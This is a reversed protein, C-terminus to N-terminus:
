AHGHYHSHLTYVVPLMLKLPQPHDLITFIKYLKTITDTCSIHFWFRWIDTVLTICNSDQIDCMQVLQQILMVCWLSASWWARHYQLWNITLYWYTLTAVDLWFTKQLILFKVLKRCPIKLSDWSWQASWQSCVPHSTQEKGQRSYVGLFKQLRRDRGFNMKQIWQRNIEMTPWCLTTHM